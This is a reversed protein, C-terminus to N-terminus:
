QERTFKLTANRRPRKAVSFVAWRGHDSDDSALLKVRRQMAQTWTSDFAIMKGVYKEGDRDVIPINDHPCEVIEDPLLLQTDTPNRDVEVTVYGVSDHPQM